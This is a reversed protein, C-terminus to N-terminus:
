RIEAYLRKLSTAPLGLAWLIGVILYIANAKGSGLQAVRRDSTQVVRNVLRMQGYHAIRQCFDAEEMVPLDPNFGGCDWFTQRRCFMVQDGFFLRMGRGFFLHPRFLLPGYYTKVLNHLTVGWRTTQAGAMVSIFGGCVVKPNAFAADIVTVLDDPVLTDAHIFCLVDGSAAQAGQNMQKSRGAQPACLVKTGPVQAIAVTDDVSGGDVVIIEAAPPDLVELCRLTRALYSAENLTPIIVSLSLM